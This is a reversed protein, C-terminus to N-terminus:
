RQVEKRPLLSMTPSLPVLPSMKTATPMPIASASAGRTRMLAASRACLGLTAAIAEALAPALLVVCVEDARPRPLKFGVEPLCCVVGLLFLLVIADM